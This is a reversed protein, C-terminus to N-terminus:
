DDGEAVIAIRAVAALRLDGTVEQHSDLHALREKRETRLNVILQEDRVVNAKWVPIIRRQEDNDSRELRVLTAHSSTLRDAAARDRHDFYATVKDRERELRQQNSSQGARELEALRQYASLEAAELAADLGDDTSDAPDLARDKPFRAMRKLLNAAAAQDVKLDDGVFAAWLERMEKLAPVGFEYVALWGSSEPLGSGTEIALGAASGPYDSSTVRGVLDDILPHGLGLYEIHESDPQVDARLAVTRHHRGNKVHEPFESFFPEHFTVDFTGDENRRLYTQVDSLLRTIFLELDAPTIPSTQHSIASAIQRSYSKTEMIFDRLKEEAERAHRIRSEIQSEYAALARDREDGGLRLIKALDRETDGLIPDLGGVTDEFVNIRRELVDLIREEITGKVWFNFVQVTHEQGIRDVRGIRQEVRMPNWPLDYNVLLHCFQFNRGEGGAETSVLVCPEDADKFAEVSADKAEPKMQGHFKHVLWGADSLRASLYEQTERFETFILVKAAPEHTRLDGLQGVLTEAKSDRPISDLLDVLHGLEAAEGSGAADARLVLESAPM